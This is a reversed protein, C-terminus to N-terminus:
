EYYVEEIIRTKRVVERPEPYKTFDYGKGKTYVHMVYDSQFDIAYLKKTEQNQYIRTHWDNGDDYDENTREIYKHNKIWNSLEEKTM